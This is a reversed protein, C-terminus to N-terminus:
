NESFLGLSRFPLLLKHERGDKRRLIIEGGDDTKQWDLYASPNDSDYNIEETEASNEWETKIKEILRSWFGDEEAVSVEADALMDEVFEGDVPEELGLDVLGQAVGFITGLVLNVQKYVLSQQREARQAEDGGYLITAVAVLVLFIVVTLVSKIPRLVSMFKFIIKLVL